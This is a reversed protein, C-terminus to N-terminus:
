ESLVVCQWAFMVGPAVGGGLQWSAVTVVYSDVAATLVVPRPSKHRELPTAVFSPHGFVKFDFPSKRLDITWRGKGDTCANGTLVVALKEASKGSKAQGFEEDAPIAQVSRKWLLIEM